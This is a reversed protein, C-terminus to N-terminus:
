KAVPEFSYSIELKATSMSGSYEWVFPQLIKYESSTIFSARPNLVVNCQKNFILRKNDLHGFYTEDRGTIDALSPDTPVWGHDQIYFEAWVHWDDSTWDGKTSTAWRGVVLRAPIGSARCLAVFIASYDGCEGYRSDYASKAGKLGGERKYSMNDIVWKYFLQAIDYPNTNNGAIEKATKILKSNDAELHKEPRTYLSYLPDTKNYATIGAPEIEYNIQYCTYAFDETVLVSSGAKLDTFKWYLIGTGTQPDEWTSTPPPTTTGHSVAKQSDWETIAPLWINLLSVTAENKLTVKRTVHYTQPNAYVPVPVPKVVLTGSRSGLAISYTGPKDKVLSFSATATGESAVMIDKTEVEAGDVTLAAAYIGESGGINKVEATITVAGGASVEPPTIILSVVEFQAPAKCALPVSLAIALLLVALLFKKEMM